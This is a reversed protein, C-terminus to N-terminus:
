EILVENLNNLDSIKEEFTELAEKQEEATLNAKNSKESDNEDAGYIIIELNKEFDEDSYHSDYTENEVIKENILDKLADLGYNQVLRDYVAKKTVKHSGITMFTGEPDSITPSVSPYTKTSSPKCSIVTFVCAIVLLCPLIRTLLLKIRKM